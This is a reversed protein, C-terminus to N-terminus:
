GAPVPLERLRVFAAALEEAWPWRRELRLTARRAHFALRGATHLARYRLRKPELGSLEGRLLLTDAWALLAGAILVLELWVANMEFDGFPLLELGMQKACRIRDECRARARHDRELCAADGERDTLIAGFRHGGSDTFSLQAGPHPRERRVILRSGQPWGDLDILDTAEAVEGNERASGDQALAPVWREDPIAAIAERVPETLDFGVSFRVRGERAWELLDHSAGASDTRLVVEVEAAIEAPLQELAEEAVAIQDAATNAGANGPRLLGALPEGGCADAPRDLFALMPHFGFSGKFTGAAGQKESAAEILTADLDIFLPGKPAASAAWAGERAARRAGRLAGPLEPDRAIAEVTRWATADSAVVGFLPEQDRIARLDSLHEGGQALMVALDRVVRGPDHAGRRERMPALCRSLAETLGVRDATWALLAAGAHSVVGEGDATVDVTFERGKRQVKM